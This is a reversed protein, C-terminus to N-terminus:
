QSHPSGRRANTCVTHLSILSPICRTNYTSRSGSVWRLKMYGVRCGVWGIYGVFGSFGVQFGGRGVCTFGPVRFGHTPSIVRAFPLVLVAPCAPAPGLPCESSARRSRRLRWSPVPVELSPPPPSPPPPPAPPPVLAFTHTQFYRTPILPLQANMAVMFQAPSSAVSGKAADADM